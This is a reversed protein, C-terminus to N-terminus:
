TKKVKGQKKQRAEKKRQNLRQQLREQASPGKPKSLAKINSVREGLGKKLQVATKTKSKTGTNKSDTEKEEGLRTLKVSATKINTARVSQHKPPSASKVVTNEYDKDTKCTEKVSTVDINGKKGKGKVLKKGRM